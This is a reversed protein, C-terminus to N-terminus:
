NTSEVKGPCTWLADAVPGLQEGAVLDEGGRDEIAQQVAGVHEVDLAATVPKAIELVGELGSM